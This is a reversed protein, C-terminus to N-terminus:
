EHPRGDNNKSYLANVAQGSSDLRGTNAIYFTTRAFRSLTAHRAYPKSLPSASQIYQRDTTVESNKVQFIEVQACDAILAWDGRQFHLNTTITMANKDHMDQLLDARVIGAGTITLEHTNGVVHLGPVRACGLTNSHTIHMQLVHRTSRANEQISNLADQLLFNKHLIVMLTSLTALLFTTMALAIMLEVLSFGDRARSCKFLEQQYSM